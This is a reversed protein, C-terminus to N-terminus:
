DCHWPLLKKDWQHGALLVVDITTFFCVFNQIAWSNETLLSLGLAWLLLFGVCVIRLVWFASFIFSSIFQISLRLCIQLILGLPDKTLWGRWLRVRVLVFFRGSSSRHDFVQRACWLWRTIQVWVWWELLIHGELWLIFHPLLLRLFCTTVPTM